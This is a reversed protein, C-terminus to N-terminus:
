SRAATSAAEPAPAASEQASRRAVLERFLNELRSRQYGVAEIRGGEAEILGRVKEALEPTIERAELRFVDKVALLEDVRGEIATTGRYLIAVRDCVDEVDALLHSSMLITKGKAKLRLIVDKM